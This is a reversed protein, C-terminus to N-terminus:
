PSSPPFSEIAMEEASLEYVEYFKINRSQWQRTYEPENSSKMLAREILYVRGDVIKLLQFIRKRTTFCTDDAVDCAVPSRARELTITDASREWRMTYDYWILGSNSELDLLQRIKGSNDSSFVIGFLPVNDLGASTNIRGDEGRREPNTLIYDKLLFKDFLPTFDLNSEREMALSHRFHTDGNRELKSIVELGNTLRNLLEITLRAGSVPYDIQLSGNTLVQWTFTEGSTELMGDGASTLIAVDDFLVWNPSSITESNTEYGAPLAWEGVLEDTTFASRSYSSDRRWQIAFSVAREVVVPPADISGLIAERAADDLISYEMTISQYYLDGEARSELLILRRQLEKTQFSYFGGDYEGVASAAIEPRVGTTLGATTNGDGSVFDLVLTNDVVSWAWTQRGAPKDLYASGNSNLTYNESIGYQFEGLSPTTPVRIYSDSLTDLVLDASTFYKADTPAVDDRDLYGDNDDDTDLNNGIGDADTDVTEMSNYPFADSNDPVFDNDDDSDDLGFASMVLRDPPSLAAQLWYLTGGVDIRPITLVTGEFTSAGTTSVGFIEEVSVVKLQIPNTEPVISLDLKFTQDGAVVVPMKLLAGELYAQQALAGASFFIVLTCLILTAVTRIRRLLALFYLMLDGEYKIITPLRAEMADLTKDRCLLKGDSQYSVLM